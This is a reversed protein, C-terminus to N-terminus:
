CLSEPFAQARKMEFIENNTNWGFNAHETLVAQVSINSRAQLFSKRPFYSLVRVSLSEVIEINCKM